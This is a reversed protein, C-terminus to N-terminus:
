NANFCVCILFVFVNTVISFQKLLINWYQIFNMKTNDVSKWGWGGEQMQNGISQQLANSYIVVTLIFFYFQFITVDARLKFILHLEM